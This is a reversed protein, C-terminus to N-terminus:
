KTWLQICRRGSAVFHRVFTRWAGPNRNGSETLLRTETMELEVDRYGPHCMLREAQAALEGPDLIASADRFGTRYPGPLLVPLLGMQALKKRFNLGSRLGGPM